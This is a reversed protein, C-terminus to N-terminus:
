CKKIKCLTLFRNSLPEAQWINKIVINEYNTSLKQLLFNKFLLVLLSLIIFAFHSRKCFQSWINGGIKDKKTFNSQAKINFRGSM